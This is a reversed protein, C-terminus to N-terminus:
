NRIKKLVNRNRYVLDDKDSYIDLSVIADAIKFYYFRIIGSYDAEIIAKLLERKYVEREEQKIYIPPIGVKKLLLNLLARFTRKNGDLFPQLKILDVM